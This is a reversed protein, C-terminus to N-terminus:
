AGRLYLRTNSTLKLTYSTIAGVTDLQCSRFNIRNASSLPNIAMRGVNVDISTVGQTEKINKRRLSNLSVCVIKKVDTLVGALPLDPYVGTLQALLVVNKGQISKYQVSLIGPYNSKIIENMQPM